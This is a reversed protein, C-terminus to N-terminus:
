TEYMSIQSIKTYENKKFNRSIRLGDNKRYKEEIIMNIKIYYYNM